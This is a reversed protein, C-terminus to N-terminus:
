DSGWEHASKDTIAPSSVTIDNPAINNDHLFAKIKNTNEDISEYLAQLDNHANIFQIPWIVLDAAVEKEALGKVTVVRELQKFEIAAKGVQFGLAALGLFIFFGLIFAM